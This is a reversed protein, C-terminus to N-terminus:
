VIGGQSKRKAPENFSPKALGATQHSGELGM